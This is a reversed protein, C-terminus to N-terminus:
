NRHVFPDRRCAMMDRRKRLVDLLVYVRTYLQILVGRPSHLSSTTSVSRQSPIMHTTRNVNKTLNGFNEFEIQGDGVSRRTELM